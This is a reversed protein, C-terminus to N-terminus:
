KFFNREPCQEPLGLSTKYPDESYRGKLWAFRHLYILFTRYALPGM